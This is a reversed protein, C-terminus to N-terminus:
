RSSATYVADRTTEKGRYMARDAQDLLEERSKADDPFTALGISATIRISRGERGLFIHEKIARRIREAVEQAGRSDSRPLVITFEDGGYRIVIDEERVHARLVRSVEILVQGGTLHGYADNVEKFYDLDLFLVSFCSDMRNAEAINRDLATELYRANYLDTLSDIFALQRAEQIRQASEYSLDVQRGVFMANRSDEADFRPGGSRRLLVFAGEASGRHLLPVLLAEGVDPDAAEGFIKRLKARPLVQAHELGRLYQLGRKVLAERLESARDAKLGKRHLLAMFQLGSGSHLCLGSATRTVSLLAELGLDLVRVPEELSAFSRSIEYLELQKRLRENERYLRRQAITADVVATLEQAAFPKRLYDAAGRKLAQVATDISAYGTMIIVDVSPSQAKVSELLELGTVEPMYIDALIMDLTQRGLEELAENASSAIRVEYGESRLVESCFTRFFADDDVVLISPKPM